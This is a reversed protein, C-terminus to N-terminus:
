AHHRFDDAAVARHAAKAREAKYEAAEDETAPRADYNHYSVNYSERSEDIVARSLYDSKASKDLVFLSGDVAAVTDGFRIQGAPKFPHIERSPYKARLQALGADSMDTTTYQSKM